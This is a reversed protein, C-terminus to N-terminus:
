QLVCRRGGFSDSAPDDDGDSSLDDDRELPLFDHWRDGSEFFEQQKRLSKGSSQKLELIAEHAMPHGKEKARFYYSAALRSNIDVDYEGHHYICGLRYLATMHGLEAAERYYELASMINKKVGLGREYCAALNALAGPDHASAAQRYCAAAEEMSVGVGIGHEYCFGLACQAPPWGADSALRYFRAAAVEDVAVGVGKKM